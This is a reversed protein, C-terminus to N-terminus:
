GYNWAEVHIFALAALLPWETADRRILVIWEMKSHGVAVWIQRGTSADGFFRITFLPMRLTWLSVHDIEITYKNRFLSCMNVRGVIKGAELIDFSPPIFSARRIVVEGERDPDHVVFDPKNFPNGLSRGAPNRRNGYRWRIVGHEDLVAGTHGGTGRDIQSLFKHGQAICEADPAVATRNRWM